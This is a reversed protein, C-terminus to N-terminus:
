RASSHPTGASRTILVQGRGSRSVQDRRWREGYVPRSKIVPIRVANIAPMMETPVRLATAPHVLPLAGLTPGPEEDRIAAVPAGYQVSAADYGEAGAM